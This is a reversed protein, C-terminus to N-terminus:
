QNTDTYPRYGLPRGKKRSSIGLRVGINTITGNGCGLLDAIQGYAYGRAYMEPVIADRAKNYEEVAKNLAQGTMRINAAKVLLKKENPSPDETGKAYTM